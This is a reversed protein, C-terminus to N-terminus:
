SAPIVVTGSESVTFSRELERPAGPGLLRLRARYAGDPLRVRHSAQGDPGVRLEARRVVEAEGRVLEVELGTAGSGAVGYVLTVERPNARFLFLGLAVAGGLLVLRAAAKM